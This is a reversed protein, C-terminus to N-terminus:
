YQSRLYINTELNLELVLAVHMTLDSLISITLM